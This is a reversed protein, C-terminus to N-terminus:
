TGSNLKHKSQAMQKKCVTHREGAMQTKKEADDPKQLVNSWKAGKVHQQSPKVCHNSKKKEPVQM